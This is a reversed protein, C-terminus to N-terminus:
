FDISNQDNKNFPLPKSIAIKIKVYCKNKLCFSFNFLKSMVRPVTCKAIKESELYCSSPLTEILDPPFSVHAYKVLEQIPLKQTKFSKNLKEIQLLNKDNSETQYLSQVPDIQQPDSFRSNLTFVFGMAIFISSLLIYVAFPIKRKNETHLSSSKYLSFVNKDLKYKSKVAGGVSKVNDNCEPYEYQYRGAWTPRLHIHKGCLLRVKKEFLLPSQTILFFDIGKHRHTTFNIVSDPQKASSSLPPYIYHVEDYFIFAGDPAWLHWEDAKLLKNYKKLEIQYLRMSSDYNKQINRNISKQVTDIIKTESLTLPLPEIPPQPCVTCVSSNCVVLTHQIKLNPIGHVYIPRGDKVAHLMNVMAHATKGSGPVGTTLNCVAM